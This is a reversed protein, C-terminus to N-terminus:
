KFTVLDEPLSMLPSWSLPGQLGSTEFCKIENRSKEVRQSKDGHIAEASFNENRLDRALSDCGRKTETFIVIKFGKPIFERLVRFLLNLKQHDEVLEIYQRIDSNTSLNSSGIQIHGPRILFDASLSQVEKPWTASCMITQRDKRIQNIIKRIQPEFGMDLMRDAEDLVLYTVRDLNTSRSDLFDILRGPTAIIAHVGKELESQQYGRPAGGYV